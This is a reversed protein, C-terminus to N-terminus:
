PEFTVSPPYLGQHHVWLLQPGPRRLLLQMVLVCILLLSSAASPHQWLCSVELVAPLCCVQATLRSLKAKDTEGLGVYFTHIVHTLQRADTLLNAQTSAVTDAIILNMWCCWAVLSSASQFCWASECLRSTQHSFTSIAGPAAGDLTETAAAFFFDAALDTLTSWGLAASDALRLTASSCFTSIAFGTAPGGSPCTVLQEYSRIATKHAM